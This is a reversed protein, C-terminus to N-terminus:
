HHPEAIILGLAEAIQLATAASVTAGAIKTVAPDIHIGPCDILISGSLNAHTFDAGSLDTREFHSAILTSERFGSEVVRCDVFRYGDLELESFTSLGLDCRNFTNPESLTADRRVSMSWNVGTLRCDDFTCGSFHSDLPDMLSLDCGAFTCEVFRTRKISASNLIVNRFDCADFECEDITADSLDLKAFAENVFQSGTFPHHETVAM